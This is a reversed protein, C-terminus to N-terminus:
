GGNRLVRSLGHPSKLWMANHLLDWAIEKHMSPGENHLMVWGHCIAHGQCYLPKNSEGDKCTYGVTAKFGFPVNVAISWESEHSGLTVDEM